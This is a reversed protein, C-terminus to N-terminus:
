LDASRRCSCGMRRICTTGKFVVIDNSYVEVMSTTRKTYCGVEQKSLSINIGTNKQLLQVVQVRM